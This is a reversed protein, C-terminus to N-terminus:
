LAMRVLDVRPDVTCGGRVDRQVFYKSNGWGYVLFHMSLRGVQRVCVLKEMQQEAVITTESEEAGASESRDARNEHVALVRAVHAYRQLSTSHPVLVVLNNDPM